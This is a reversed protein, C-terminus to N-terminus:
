ASEGGVVAEVQRDAILRFFLAADPPRCIEAKVIDIAALIRQAVAEVGVVTLNAHHLGRQEAQQRVKCNFHPKLSESLSLPKAGIASNLM